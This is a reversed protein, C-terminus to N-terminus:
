GEGGDAALSVCVIEQDNRAFVCRNAFAPHSWVVKRGFAGGTPELLKARSIEEYGEPSLKAMILDGTEAFLIFRDEHKVIFATGHPARQEGGATPALTEWLREGTALRVCRLHGSNCDTGYIMGNELFPTSTSCYVAIKPDGRWVEDVAPRDSALRLVVAVDRIGSAFLLDGSKRPAAISMGFNPVLPVSWYVQGTKPDLGNIAEPHWILLQRKGGAEILTPPCYGAERASLSRWLEKGTDKDFAVAVSGEGGVLCFLKKGEILPHGCFGWMPTEAKYDKKLDRSWLVKGNSADWCHLNGEAGLTYVKGDAVTPTCRPGTAYSMNYECEYQKQWRQQGTAADLCIVREKGRLRDRNNFDLTSKGRTPKFDMVLVAGRAVAPGSYGGAIPRRWVTKPGAAPFSTLIQTERWVNDRKPGMWQPWDDARVSVFLLGSILGLRAVFRLRFM